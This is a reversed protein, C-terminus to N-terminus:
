KLKKELREIRKNQEIIYLTLEEIKEQQKITIEKVEFGGSEKISEESPMNPLHRYKKIFKEVEQLSRLKYSSNFVYDAWEDSTSLAIKLKETLIGDKVYLKYAGNLTNNGNPNLGISVKGNDALFLYHNGFNNSGFPKWFNLGNIGESNNTYEIGWEGNQDQTGGFLIMSGGFPNEGSIKVTGNHVHFKQKPSNLGVGVFGNRKVIFNTKANQKKIEFISNNIKPRDPIFIPYNPYVLSFGSYDTYVYNDKLEIDLVSKPNKLGIGIQGKDWYLDNNDTTSTNFQSFATAAILLFYIILSSKKM